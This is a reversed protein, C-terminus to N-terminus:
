NGGKLAEVAAVGRRLVEMNAKAAEPKGKSGALELLADLSVAKCLDMAAALGVLNASKGAGLEEAIRMMPIGLWNSFKRPRMLTTDYIVPCAADDYRTGVVDSLAIIVDPKTVQQFMIEGDDIIAEASIFGGRQSIGYSQTQVVNKGSRIAAEALFSSCFVLGQGGTGAMLVEFHAM